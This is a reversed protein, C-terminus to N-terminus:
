IFSIQFITVRYTKRLTDLFILNKKNMIIFTLLFGNRNKNIFITLIIKKIVIKLGYTSILVGSKSYFGEDLLTQNEHFHIFDKQWKFEFKSFDSKLNLVLDYM